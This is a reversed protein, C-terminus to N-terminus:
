TLFSHFHVEVEWKVEMAYKWVFIVVVAEL